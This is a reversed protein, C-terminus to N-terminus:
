SIWRRQRARIRGTIGKAKIIRREKEEEDKGEISFLIGDITCKLIDGENIKFPILELPISLTMKNPLECVAFKSDVIREVSIISLDIEM